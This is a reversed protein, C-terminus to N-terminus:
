ISTLGIGQVPGTGAAYNCSAHAPKWNRQDWTLQPYDRRSKVHQVTLADDTGRASYNIPQHCICCPDGHAKDTALSGGPGYNHRVWQLAQQARRGNWAPIHLGNDV